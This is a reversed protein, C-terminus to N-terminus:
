CSGGCRVGCKDRKLGWVAGGADDFKTPRDKGALGYVIILDDRTLKYIGKMVRDTKGQVLDIEPPKKKANLKLTMSNFLTTKVGGRNINLQDKDIVFKSTLIAPPADKGRMSWMTVSWTGQMNKLDAKDDGGPEPSPEEAALCLSAVLCMALIPRM